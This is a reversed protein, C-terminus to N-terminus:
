FNRGIGQSYHDEEYVNACDEQVWGRELLLSILLKRSKVSFNAEMELPM